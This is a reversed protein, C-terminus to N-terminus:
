ILELPKLFQNPHITKHRLTENRPSLSIECWKRDCSQTITTPHNKEEAVSM